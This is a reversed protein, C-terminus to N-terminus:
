WDKGSRVAHRKKEPIQFSLFRSRDEEVSDLLAEAKKKNIMSMAPDSRKGVKQEEPLAQLPKL